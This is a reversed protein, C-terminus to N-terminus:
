VEGEISAWTPKSTGRTDYLRELRLQMKEHFAELSAHPLPVSLDRPCYAFYPIFTEDRKTLANEEAITLLSKLSLRRALFEHVGVEYALSFSTCFHPLRRGRIRRVYIAAIRNPFERRLESFVEPDHESDDGLLLFTEPTTVFIKRLAELKYNKIKTERLWDRLRITAEPFEHLRLFRQIKRQIWTPSSSILYLQGTSHLLGRYLTSM